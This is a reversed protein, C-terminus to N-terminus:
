DLFTALWDLEIDRDIAFAGAAGNCNTSTAFSNVAVLTDGVLIPGGSDGFCIGGHKADGSIVITNSGEIPGVGNAGKDNTLKLTAQYRVKDNQGNGNKDTNGKEAQLGYGVATLPTGKRGREITDTFDISPLEAYRDLEVPEDLVVVALDYVFFQSDDYLPHVYVTGAYSTGGGDFYGNDPRGADVDSEFWIAATPTDVTCHGATVYVTPSVLAGSCRGLAEGDEGYFVSLGVYPHDEGDLEGDTIAGAPAASVLLLAFAALLPWLLRIAKM